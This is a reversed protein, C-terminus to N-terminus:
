PRNTDTKKPKTKTPKAPPGGPATPAAQSTGMTAIPDTPHVTTVTTVTNAPEPNGPASATATRPTADTSQSGRAGGNRNIPSISILATAVLSALVAATALHKSRRPAPPGDIVPEPQSEALAPLLATAVPDDTAATPRSDRLPTAASSDTLLSLRRHTQHATPRRRPDPATMAALLATWQPGYGHPITPPADVRALADDVGDGPFAPAGTLCEILVLGLSYVDSPPGVDRGRLQEPSAYKATGVTFGYTTLHAAGARRAIGFDTLKATLQDPCEGTLDLLINAPKIDRHVIGAEHIHSLAGAVDRGVQATPERGLVAGLFRERQLRERLSPGQVLELVLYSEEEDIGAADYVTVLNRHSLSALMRIESAARERDHHSDSGFRFIKVAVQRRLLQDEARYVDAMGGRGIRNLLRYRSSLMRAEGTPARDTLSV